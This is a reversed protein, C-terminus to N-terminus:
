NVDSLIPVMDHFMFTEYPLIRLGDNGAKMLIFVAFYLVAAGIVGVTFLKKLNKNEVGKM